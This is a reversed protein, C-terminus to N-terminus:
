KSSQARVSLPNATMRPFLGRFVPYQNVVVTRYFIEGGTDIQWSRRFFNAKVWYPCRHTGECGRGVRTEMGRTEAMICPDSDGQREVVTTVVCWSHRM